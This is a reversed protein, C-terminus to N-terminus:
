NVRRFCVRGNILALRGTTPRADGNKYGDQSVKNTWSRQSWVNGPMACGLWGSRSSCVIACCAVAFTTVARFPGLFLILVAASGMACGLWGSRSSCVIACCAIAFSTGARFPGFRLVRIPRAGLRQAPSCSIVFWRGRRRSNPFAFSMPAILALIATAMSGQDTIPGQHNPWSLAATQLCHLV